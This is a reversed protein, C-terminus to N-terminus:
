SRVQIAGVLKIALVGCESERDLIMSVIRNKFRAMFLELRESMETGECLCLLVELCKRRVESEKDHLTWGVYKLYSDELFNEPYIQMWRGIEEICICRIDAVADRCSLSM